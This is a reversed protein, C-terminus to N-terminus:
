LLFLCSAPFPDPHPPDAWQPVERLSPLLVVCRQDSRHHVWSYKVSVAPPVAEHESDGTLQQNWNVSSLHKNINRMPKEKLNCKFKLHLHKLNLHLLSLKGWCFKIPLWKPGSKKKKKLKWLKLYLFSSKQYSSPIEELFIRWNQFKPQFYWTISTLLLTMMSDRTDVSMWIGRPMKLSALMFLLSPLFSFSFLLLSFLSALFSLLFPCQLFSMLLSWHVQPGDDSEEQKKNTVEQLRVAKVAAKRCLRNFSRESDGGNSETWSSFWYRLTEAEM